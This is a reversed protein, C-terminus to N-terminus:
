GGSKVPAPKQERAYNELSSLSPGYDELPADLYHPADRRVRALLDPSLDDFSKQPMFDGMYLVHGPAQGMLMWPLWPTIRSWVGNHPIATKSPDEVDAVDMVYRFMESAQVMDGSSERPWEAPKLWNPYWLHIDTTLLLKDGRRKFNLKLPTPPPLKSKDVGGHSPPQRMSAITINYPDNYVPVVKVEENTYPNLYTDMLAGTKLDRYFVTERLLKRWNGDPLQLMRTMSFVEFAFLERVKEGARVGLCIGNAWGIKAKNYDLDGSIRAWTDRNWVPDDFDIKTAFQINAGQNPANQRTEPRPPQQGYSPAPMVFSLAGAAGAGLLGRRSLAHPDLWRDPTDSPLVTESM